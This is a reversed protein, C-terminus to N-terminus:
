TFRIFHPSKVFLSGCLKERPKNQKDQPTSPTM